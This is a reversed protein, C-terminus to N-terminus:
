DHRLKDTQTTLFPDQILEQARPPLHGLLDVLGPDMPRELPTIGSSDQRSDAAPEAPVRWGGSVQVRVHRFSAADLSIATIRSAPGGANNLTPQVVILADTGLVTAATRGDVDSAWWQVIKGAKANIKAKVSEGLRTWLEEPTAISASFDLSGHRHLVPRRRTVALQGNNDIPYIARCPHGRRDAGVSM